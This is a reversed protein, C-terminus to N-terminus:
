QLRLFYRDQLYNNVQSVCLDSEYANLNQNECRKLISLKIKMIVNEIEQKEEKTMDVYSM